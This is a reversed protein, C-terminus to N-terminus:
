PHKVNFGHGKNGIKEADELSAKIGAIVFVRARVWERLNAATAKAETAIPTGADAM